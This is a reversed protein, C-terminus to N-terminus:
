RSHLLPSWPCARRRGKRLWVSRSLCRGDRGRVGLGTLSGSELWVSGIAADRLTASRALCLPGVRLRRSNFTPPQPTSLKDNPQAVGIPARAEEWDGKTRAVHRTWGRLDALILNGVLCRRERWRGIFGIGCVSTAWRAEGLAWRGM